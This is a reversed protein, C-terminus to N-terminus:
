ALAHRFEELLNAAVRNRYHATSRIDDIPTIESLLTETAGLGKQLAQETRPCRIVMPAVSGLAIRITYGEKIGAFCIKSIAQARRAGVKRIYEIRPSTPRPLEIAVILEDPALLSQKYGTHFGNYDVTRTGNPKALVLRANYVLLAPSSDAAPSANAINGGLTGRNQNAISGTWSAAQCLLRFERQLDPHRQIDTYTTLAGITIATPAVTIHNLHLKTLDVFRRTRLQNAQFLVMIDTGGAIPQYGDARLTLAEELSRATRLDYDPVSARM